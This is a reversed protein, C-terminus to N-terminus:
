RYGRLRQAEAVRAVAIDFAAERFTSGNSNAREIMADTATEMLEQLKTNVREETWRERQMNQVWELYSVVVGGASALIDPVVTIGRQALTADADSTVPYNALELVLNARVREANESTISEELAAPALM